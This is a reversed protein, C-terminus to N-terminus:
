TSQKRTNQKKGCLFIKAINNATEKLCAYSQKKIREWHVAPDRLEKHITFIADVGQDYLKAYGKGVTGSLLCLPINQKKAEQMVGWLVKGYSSQADVRGEGAIILDAGKIRKAFGLTSLVLEIGSRIEAGFCVQLCAGLGGAAGFGQQAFTKLSSLKYCNKLVKAFSLMGAELEEQMKKSAGKQKGFVMVAGKKGLLPNQVDSAVLLSCSSFVYADKTDIDQVESLFRGGRGVETGRKNRLRVGLSQLLGMGGDITASGGLGILIQKAGQKHAACLLAGMGYSSCRQPNKEAETLTELGIAKASEVIAIKLSPIWLYPARMQRGLADCTQVYKITGGHARFLVEILGEGGDSLPICEYKARPLVSAMGRQVAEVAKSATLTEKFSDLCIVFKM